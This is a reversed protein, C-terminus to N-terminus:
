PGDFEVYELKIKQYHYASTNGAILLQKMLIWRPYHFVVKNRFSSKILITIPTKFDNTCISPVPEWLINFRKFEVLLLCICSHFM